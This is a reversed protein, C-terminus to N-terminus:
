KKKLFASTWPTIFKLGASAIAYNVRNSVLDKPGQELISALSSLFYDIDQERAVLPPYVRLVSKNNLMLTGLIGFQKLLAAAVMGPLHEKLVNRLGPIKAPLYRAQDVVGEDFEIGVMLGRGRVERIWHPYQKKIAELGHILREGLFAARQALREERYVELAAM